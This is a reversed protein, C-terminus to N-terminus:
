SLMSMDKLVVSDTSAVSENFKESGGKNQVM